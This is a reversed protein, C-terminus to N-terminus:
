KIHWYNNGIVELIYTIHFQTIDSHKVIFVDMGRGPEGNTWSEVGFEYRNIITKTRDMIADFLEDPLYVLTCNPPVDKGTM